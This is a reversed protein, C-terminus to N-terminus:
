AKLMIQINGSTARVFQGTPFIYGESPAPTVKDTFSPDNAEEIVYGATACFLYGLKNGLVYIVNQVMTFPIGYPISSYAM